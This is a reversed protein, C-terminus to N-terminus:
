KETRPTIAMELPAVWHKADANYYLYARSAPGRYEGPVRCILDVPVEKVADPALDRWYLILERGRTEWAAIRGPKTGDEQLRAYDKLQKFDEPLTLGAPLGVIAVAMGQGKGSVNKVTATLRVTEGEVAAKRDLKVDLRVPCGEASAPQLTRYTWTLTYPLVNNGSIEARVVNKGPHLLKEAHAPVVTLMEQAGAPFSLKGAEQDNILLRLEGGEATKKNAKTYAILAKLALITAQTSGYGGYGGRQQGLWKVGAQIPLHFDGPRNAKLWGLLALATTEIQLDRGASGTISTQTGELYGEKKQLGTLKKLLDVADATQGRNLLCNAVLALFYPDNSGRAQMKLAMLEKGLDEDGGAETLGWVIYANTIEAPARGFSDLARPNRTFGGQGDRAALLYGRTRAVMSPDVAFVNAMDRFEMLGYATLAEHPPATGGFWEYGQRQGPAAPKQCEFSTLKRYGNDLLERARKEVEPSVKDTEKLYNLILANPYNASSTQEFCGHPERLLGELGAQLEALTSPFVQLRMELSGRVWTDPMVVDNVATKELVDSRTGVVPFGDPVVALSRTVEDHLNGDGRGLFTLKAEGTVGEPKFRFVERGRQNAALNLQRQASGSAVMGNAVALLDVQQRADTDNAVAVPVDIKDTATVEVPLKPEVSFPLRAAFTTTAAGIRGDLTYGFATAQFTTLSDCLEFNVTQRGNAPLVLVPHWYLTETDDRRGDGTPQAQGSRTHAFQRVVLPPLPAVAQAKRRFAEFDEAREAGKGNGFGGGAGPGGGAGLGGRGYDRGRAAAGAPMRQAVQPEAPPAPMEPQATGPALPKGPMGFARNGPAPDEQKFDAKRDLGQRAADPAPNKQFDPTARPNGAMPGMPAAPGPAGPRGGAGMVVKKAAEADKAADQGKVVKEEAPQNAPATKSAAPAGTAAPLPKGNKEAFRAQGRDLGTRDVNKDAEPPPAKGDDGKLKLQDKPEAAKKERDGKQQDPAAEVAPQDKMGKALEKGEPEGKAGPAPPSV